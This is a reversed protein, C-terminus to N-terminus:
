VPNPKKPQHQHQGYISLEENKYIVNHCKIKLTQGKLKIRYYKLCIEERRQAIVIVHLDHFM